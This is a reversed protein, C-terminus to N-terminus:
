SLGELKNQIVSKVQDIDYYAFDDDGNEFEHVQFKGMLEQLLKQKDSTIIAMFEEWLDETLNNATVAKQNVSVLKDFIERLETENETPKM